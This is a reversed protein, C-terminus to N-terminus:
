GERTPLDASGLTPLSHSGRAARVIVPMPAVFAPRATVSRISLAPRGGGQGGQSGMTQPQNKWGRACVTSGRASSPVYVRWETANPVLNLPGNSMKRASKAKRFLSHPTARRRRRRKQRQRRRRPTNRLRPHVARPAPRAANIQEKKTKSKSQAREVREQKGTRCQGALVVRALTTAHPRWVPVCAGAHAMGGELFRHTHAPARVSCACSEWGVALCEGRRGRARGNGRACRQCRSCANFQLSRESTSGGSHLRAPSPVYCKKRARHAARRGEDEEAPHKSKRRPTDSRCWPARVADERQSGAPLNSANCRSPVLGAHAGRALLCWNTLAKRERLWLNVTSVPFPCHKHPALASSSRACGARLGHRTAPQAARRATAPLPLSEAAGCDGTRQPHPHTDGHVGPRRGCPSAFLHALASERTSRLSDHPEAIEVVDM